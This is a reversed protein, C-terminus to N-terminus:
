RKAAAADERRKKMLRSRGEGGAKAIAKYALSRSCFDKNEKPSKHKALLVAPEDEYRYKQKAEETNGESERKRVMSAVM